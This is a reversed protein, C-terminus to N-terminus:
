DLLSIFDIFYGVSIWELVLESKPRRFSRGTEDSTRLNPDGLPMMM